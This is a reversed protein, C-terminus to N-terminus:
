DFKQSQSTPNFIRFYPAGDAGTSASWQWGGNNSCFDADMLHRNFFAEGLRWDILLHKTLFMASVMRLRNHMWGTELLQRQAADVIPYGTNGTSWAHFDARAGADQHPNRWPVEETDPKFAKHKCVDPFAIAIHRSFERWILENIWSDIGADGGSLQGENAQFATYLCQRPSLIGVALAVSLQSTAEKAPLDRDQQYLRGRQEVFCRLQEHSTAECAQWHTANPQITENPQSAEDIAVADIEVADSAFLDVSLSVDVSLFADVSLSADALPPAPLPRLGM